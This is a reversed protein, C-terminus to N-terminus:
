QTASPLIVARSPRRHYYHHHHLHRHHHYCHHCIVFPFTCSVCFSLYLSFRRPLHSHSFPSSSPRPHYVGQERRAHAVSVFARGPSLATHPAHHRRYTRYCLPPPLLLLGAPIPTSARTSCASTPPGAVGTPTSGCPRPVTVKGRRERGGTFRTARGLFALVAAHPSVPTPPPRFCTHSSHLHSATHRERQRPSPTGPQRAVHLCCPGHATLTM